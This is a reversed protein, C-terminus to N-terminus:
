PRPGSEIIEHDVLRKGLDALRFSGTLFPGDALVRPYWLADDAPMSAYPIDPLAFWSVDCDEHEVVLGAVEAANCHYVYESEDFDTTENGCLGCLYTKKEEIFAFKAVPQYRSPDLVLGCVRKCVEVAAEIGSLGPPADALIGTHNDQWEGKKWRCLLVAGAEDVVLTQVLQRKGPPAM